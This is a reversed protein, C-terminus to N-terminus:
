FGGKYEPFESKVVEPKKVEKVPEPNPEAKRPKKIGFWGKVKDSIESYFRKVKDINKERQCVDVTYLGASMAVAWGASIETHGNELMYRDLDDILPTIDNQSLLRGETGFMLVHSQAYLAAMKAAEQRYAANPKIEDEGDARPKANKSLKKWKQLKGTLEPPYAHISPDYPNGKSDPTGRYKEGGDDGAPEPRDGYDQEFETNEPETEGIFDHATDSVPPLEFTMLSLNDTLPAETPPELPEPRKKYM